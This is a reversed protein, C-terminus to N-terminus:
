AAAKEEMRSVGEEADEVDVDAVRLGTGEVGPDEVPLRSLVDARLILIM